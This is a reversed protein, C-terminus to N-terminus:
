VTLPLTQYHIHQQINHGRAASTPLTTSAVSTNHLPLTTHETSTGSRTRHQQTVETPIVVTDRNEIMNSVCENLMLLQSVGEDESSALTDSQMYYLIYEVCSEEDSPELNTADQGDVAIGKALEYLERGSLKYINKKIAWILQKRVSSMAYAPRSYLLATGKSSGFGEEPHSRGPQVGM